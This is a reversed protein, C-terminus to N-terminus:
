KVRVFKMGRQRGEAVVFEDRSGFKLLMGGQASFVNSTLPTLALEEFRLRMSDAPRRLMLADGKQFVTVRLDNLEPSVYDGTLSSFNAGPKADVREFVVKASSQPMAIMRMTGAGREFHIRGGNLSFDGNGEPTLEAAVLSGRTTLKGDHLMVRQAGLMSESLYAGEYQALNEGTKPQPNPPASMDGALYIEAVKTALQSPGSSALNCQVAVSFHQDPFRVLETRFGAWAGGHAVRRLGRYEDIFLGDAYTIKTDDNLVGTTQLEKLLAEGGVKPEYFNQDWKALDEITTQVAGDGTQEWNSMVEIYHDSRAAYSNAKRPIIRTHDDLIQTDKMALPKFINEAAFERLTKGSARRVVISLLFYNSNSYLFDDGPSFNLGKQKTLIALADDDTTVAEEQAGAMSLLGIYDRIGSTHHLLHHLTIRHGLDPLEPIWKRIDDDLSLKGQQTLLIIATATIQKSTSGIDFVTHPTIPVGLEISAMGYGKEYTLKGNQIVGLACGPTTPGFKAFVADVKSIDVATNAPLTPQALAAGGAFLLALAIRMRAISDSLVQVDLLYSVHM